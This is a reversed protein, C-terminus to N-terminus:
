ICKVSCSGSLLVKFWIRCVITLVVYFVAEGDEPKHVLQEVFYESVTDLLKTEVDIMAAAVAVVMGASPQDPLLVVLLGSSFSLDGFLFFPLLVVVYYLWSRHM